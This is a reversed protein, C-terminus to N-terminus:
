PCGALLALRGDIVRLREVMAPVDPQAAAPRKGRGSRAAAKAGLGLLAGVGFPLLVSAAAGAVGAAVEGGSAKRKKRRGMAIDGVARDLAAREAQLAAREGAAGACPPPAPSAAAEVPEPALLDAPEAAAAPPALLMAATVIM